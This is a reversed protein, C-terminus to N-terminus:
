QVDLVNIRADCDRTAVIPELMNSPARKCRDFHFGKIGRAAGTKGCHPCTVTKSPRQQYTLGTFLTCNNGHWRRYNVADSEVSCHECTIKANKSKKLSESIKECTKETRTKGTNKEATIRVADQPRKKGTNKDVRKKITERSQKKGRQLISLYEAFERRHESFIKSRRSRQQHINGMSSNFIHFAFCMSRNRFAKWLLLHAIYHMRATLRVINTKKNSGGMSRPVIHHSEFHEEATFQQTKAFEILKLYRNFNIQSRIEANFTEM